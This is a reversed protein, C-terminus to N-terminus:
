ILSCCLQQDHGRVVHGFRAALTSPVPWEFREPFDALPWEHHRPVADSAPALEIEKIGLYLWHAPTL